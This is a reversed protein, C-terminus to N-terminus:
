FQFERRHLAATLGADAAVESGTMVAAAGSCLFLAIRAIEMPAAIRTQDLPLAAVTANGAGFAARLMPTDTFGPNLVNFRRGTRAYQNALRFTWLAIAEKATTYYQQATLTEAAVFGAIEDLRRVELLRRAVDIDRRWHRGASSGTNLVCGDAALRDLLTETFLRTGVYNVAIVREPTGGDAGVGAFNCLVDVREPLLRCAAAISAADCLNMRVRRTGHAAPATNQIAVVEAGQELFLQAAAAGIGSGAGTVVVTKGSFQM